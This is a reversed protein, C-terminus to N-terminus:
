AFSNPQPSGNSPRTAPMTASKALCFSGFRSRQQIASISPSFTPQM